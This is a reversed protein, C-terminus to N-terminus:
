YGIEEAVGRLHFKLAPEYGCSTIRDNEVALGARESLAIVPTRNAECLAAIEADHAPQYHCWISCGEILNLGDLDSIAVDNRDMRDATGINRGMVIAGASGGYLAGGREVFRKLGEDFGTARVQHLLYYTNGGGIYVAAYQTLEDPGNVRLDTWLTIDTVGLPEFVSRIWSLHRDYCDAQSAIPLYLLRGAGVWQAFLIDLPRSDADSGGGALIFRRVRM